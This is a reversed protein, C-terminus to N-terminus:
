CCVECSGAKPLEDHIQGFFAPVPGLADPRRHIPNPSEGPVKHTFAM